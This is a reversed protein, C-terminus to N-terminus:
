LALCCLVDDTFANSKAGMLYEWWGGVLNFIKTSRGQTQRVNRFYSMTQNQMLNCVYLKQVQSVARQSIFEKGKERSSLAFVTVSILKDM